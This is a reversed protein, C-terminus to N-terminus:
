TGPRGALAKEDADTLVGAGGPKNAVSLTEGITEM